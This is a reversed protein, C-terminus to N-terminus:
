KLAPRWDAIVRFEPLGLKNLEYVAPPLVFNQESRVKGNDIEFSSSTFDIFEPQFLIRLMLQEPFISNM